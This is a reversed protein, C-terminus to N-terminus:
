TLLAEIAEPTVLAHNQGDGAYYSQGREVKRHQGNCARLVPFSAWEKALNLGFATVSLRGAMFRSYGRRELLHFGM